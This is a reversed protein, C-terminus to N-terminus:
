IKFTSRSEDTDGIMSAKERWSMEDPFIVNYCCSVKEISTRIRKSSKVLTVTPPKSLKIVILLYKHIM